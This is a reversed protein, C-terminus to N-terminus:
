EEFCLNAYEVLDPWDDCWDQGLFWSWYADPVDGLRTGKHKGFPMISDDTLKTGMSVERAMGLWAEGAAGRWAMGRWALGHRGRWAQRALKQLEIM